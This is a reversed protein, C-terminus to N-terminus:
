TSPFAVRKSPHSNIVALIFEELSEMAVLVM